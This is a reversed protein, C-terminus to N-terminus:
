DGYAKLLAQLYTGGIPLIKGVPPQLRLQWHEGHQRRAIERVKRLNVAHSRHIRLLGYPLYAPLVEGLSRVDRITRASRRRIITEDGNAELYYVTRPDIPVRRYKSLHILVRDIAAMSELM